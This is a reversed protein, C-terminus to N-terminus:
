GGAVFTELLRTILWIVLPVLLASVVGRLTEPRWPWTSIAGVHARSLTIGELATKLDGIGALESREVRTQMEEVLGAVSRGLRDEERRKEIGLLRHAGWLPAVFAAAALLMASGSIILWQISGALDSMTPTAVIALGALFLAHAATLRSYAYIPGLAFLDIRTHRTTLEAILRMQRFILFPGIGAGAYVLILLAWEVASTAPSTMIGLLEYMDPPRMLTLLMLAAVGAVAAAATARAPLTTLRYRYAEFGASDLTLLPRATDLARAAADSFVHVAPLILAAYLPVVVHILRFGDPFTGDAVKVGIEIALLLAVLAAYILPAPVPSRRIADILRHVFSPVYPVRSAAGGDGPAALDPSSVAAAQAPVSPDM